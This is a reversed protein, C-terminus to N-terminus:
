LDCTELAEKLQEASCATINETLNCDGKKQSNPLWKTFMLVLVVAAAAVLLMVLLWGVLVANM